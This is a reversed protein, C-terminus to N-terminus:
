RSARGGPRVAAHVAGSLLVVLLSACAVAVAAGRRITMSLGEGPLRDRLARLRAAPQRSGADGVDTRPQARDILAVEAPGDGGEFGGDRGVGVVGAGVQQERAGGDVGGASSGASSSASRSASKARAASM